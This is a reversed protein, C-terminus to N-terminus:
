PRWSEDFDEHDAYPLALFAVALDWDPGSTHQNTAYDVIRRKAECEALVRAPIGCDCPEHPCGEIHPAPYEGFREEDEAIRALLFEALTVRQPSATTM